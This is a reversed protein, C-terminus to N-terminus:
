CATPMCHCARRHLLPAPSPDLRPRARISTQRRHPDASVLVRFLKDWTPAPSMLHSADVGKSKCHCQSWENAMSWWVNKYASLRAAAYRLYSADLAMDYTERDRGGMCDFGWHGRDYPHFLIVDAIIDMRGLAAVLREYNQWYSVNPRTLDFSHALSPCDTGVCEWASTNAAVSGPKIVFPTGAQVPNQHNYPYWKAATALKTRRNALLGASALRYVCLPRPISVLQRM